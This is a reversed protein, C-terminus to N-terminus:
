VRRKRDRLFKPVDVEALRELELRKDKPVSDLLKQRDAHCEQILRDLDKKSM